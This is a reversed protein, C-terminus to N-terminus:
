VPADQPRSQCLLYFWLPPTNSAFQELCIPWCLFVSREGFTKTNVCPPPPPPPPPPRCLEHTLHLDYNDQQLILNFSIPCISLPQELSPISASSLYDVATLCHNKNSCLHKEVRVRNWLGYIQLTRVYFKGVCNTHTHAHTLRHTHMHTHTCANM